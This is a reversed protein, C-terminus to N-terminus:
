KKVPPYYRMTWDGVTFFRKVAWQDYLHKQRRVAQGANWRVQDYALELTDRVLIAYPNEIPDTSETESARRPLGADMPRITMIYMSMCTIYYARYPLASVAEFTRTYFVVPESVAPLM